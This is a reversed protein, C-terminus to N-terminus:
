GARGAWYGPGPTQIGKSICRKKVAKDSVGFAQALTTMPIQWILRRLEEDSPWPRKGSNTRPIYKYADQCKKNCFHHLYKMQSPLKQVPKGCHSCPVTPSPKRAFSAILEKQQIIISMRWEEHIEAHCNKCVLDCKDIEPKIREWNWTKGASALSFDKGSPDRHHFDLAAISKDYDCRQCKGGKYEVAKQKTKRRYECVYLSIRKRKETRNMM